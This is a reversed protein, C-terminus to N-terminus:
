AGDDGEPARDTPVELTALLHELREALEPVRRELEAAEDDLELERAAELDEQAQQWERYTKIVANLENYRRGVRKARAPDAHLAPDAMRQELEAHEVVLSEVAEFM